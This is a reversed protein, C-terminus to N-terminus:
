IIMLLMQVNAAWKKNELNHKGDGMEKGFKAEKWIPAGKDGKCPASLMEPWNEITDGFVDAYMKLGPSKM